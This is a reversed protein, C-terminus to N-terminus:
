FLLEILKKANKRNDFQEALIDRRSSIIRETFPEDMLLHIKSIMEESSDAIHCLSRVSSNECASRNVIVHRGAYLAILLKLKFGHSALAPLIHIQAGGILKDMQLNDPNIVLSINRYKLAHTRLFEPPNKGAIVCKFSIKSFVDSILMDAMASNENVSMDGHCLIFEGTGTLSKLGHFPHFPALLVSNNFHEGFYGQDSDSIPLILDAHELVKEYRKLKVSELKYYIRKFLNPEDEALSQYYRHEINHLRVIKKRGSLSPHNLYLTTHLGDFLVPFDDKNLNSLLRGSNRSYVIYPVPSLQGSFGTTRPYYETTVCLSELEKSHPRGYEFCHLHVRVGLDNLARIRYFTDIMGGYDPPYPINLTIIHLDMM